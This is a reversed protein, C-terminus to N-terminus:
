LLGNEVISMSVVNVEVLQAEYQSAFYNEINLEWKKVMETTWSRHKGARFALAIVTASKLEGNEKVEVGFFNPYFMKVPENAQCFEKCFEKFSQNRGLDANYM